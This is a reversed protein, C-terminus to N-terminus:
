WTPGIIRVDVSIADARGGWRLSSRGNSVWDNPMTRAAAAVALAEADVGMVAAGRRAAPLSFNGAGCFLDLM